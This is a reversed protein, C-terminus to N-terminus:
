ELFVYANNAQTLACCGAASRSPISPAAPRWWRLGDTWKLVDAPVAESKSNPNSMPFIMPRKVGECM